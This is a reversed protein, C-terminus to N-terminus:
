TMIVYFLSHIDDGLEELFNEILGDIKNRNRLPFKENQELVTILKLRKRVDHTITTTTTTTTTAAAPAFQQLEAQAQQQQHEDEGGNNNGINNNMM